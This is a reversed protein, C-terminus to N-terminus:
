GRDYSLVPLARHAWRFALASLVLLAACVSWSLVYGGTLDILVGFGWPAVLAGTYYGALMVGSARGVAEPARDVVVAHVLGAGALNAAIGVAAGAALLVLWWGAGLLMATIGVSGTLCIVAQFLARRGAGVRDAWRATALMVVLGILTGASVLAGALGTSMGASEHLYTVMWSQLPQSGCIFLFAAVPLIWFGPRLRAEGGLSRGVTAGRPMTALVAVAALAVAGALVWVIVTWQSGPFWGSALAMLSAAAPVGATKVTLAFGDTGPRAVAVVAMNTGVNVLAYLAGTVVAVAALVAYSNLLAMAVLSTALGTMSLLLCGRAGIRAGWRAALVSAMGTAGFFLGILLGLEGRSVGLDERLAPGVFGFLFGPGSGLGASLSCTLIVPWPGAPAPRAGSRVTV